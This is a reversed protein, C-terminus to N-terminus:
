RPLGFSGVLGHLSDEQNGFDSCRVQSQLSMCGVSAPMRFTMGLDHSLGARERVVPNRALNGYFSPPRGQPEAHGAPPRCRLHPPEVRAGQSEVSDFLFKNLNRDATGGASFGKGNENQFWQSATDASFFSNDEQEADSYGGMGDAVDGGNGPRQRRLMAQSRWNKMRNQFMRTKTRRQFVGDECMHCYECSAGKSCGTERWNWACPRCTGEAHFEAGASWSLSTIVNPGSAGLTEEESQADQNARAKSIALRLSMAPDFTAHVDAQQLMEDGGSTCMGFDVHREYDRPVKQKKKKDKVRKQFVGDECLHCYECSTGKRCGSDKWNWACPRCTGDRHGVAGASWSCGPLM